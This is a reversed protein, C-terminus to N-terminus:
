RLTATSSSTSCAGCWDTWTPTTRRLRGREQARGLGTLGEGRARASCGGAPREGGDPMRQMGGLDYMRRTEPKSLTKYAYSLRQFATTATPYHPLKSIASPFPRTADAWSRPACARTRIRYAPRVPGM